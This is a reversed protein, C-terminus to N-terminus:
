SGTVNRRVSRRLLKFSDTLVPAALTVVVWRTRQRHRRCTLRSMWWLSSSSLCLRESTYLPPTRQPTLSQCVTGVKDSLCGLFFSACGILLGHHLLPIHATHLLFPSVCRGCWWGVCVGRPSFQSPLPSIHTGCLINERRRWKGVVQPIVGVSFGMGSQAGPPM